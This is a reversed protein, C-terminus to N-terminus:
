HFVAKPLVIVLGVLFTIVTSLLLGLSPSASARCAKWGWVWLPPSPSGCSVPTIASTTDVSGMGALALIVLPWATVAVLSWGQKRSDGCGEPARVRASCSENRWPAPACM